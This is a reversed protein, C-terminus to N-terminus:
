LPMSGASMSLSDFSVLLRDSDILFIARCCAFHLRVEEREKKGGVLNATANLQMELVEQTGKAFVRAEKSELACCYLRSLQRRDAKVQVQERYLDVVMCGSVRGIGEVKEFVKTKCAVSSL